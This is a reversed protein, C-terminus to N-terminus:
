RLSDARGRWWAWSASAIGAKLFVEGGLQCPDPRSKGAARGYLQPPLVLRADSLLVPDGPAPGPTARPWRRRVILAGRGGVDESRDTGGLAFSRRQDQGAAVGFRHREVQLLNGGCDRRSRVGHQQEILRPPM